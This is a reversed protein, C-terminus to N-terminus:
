APSAKQKKKKLGNSNGYGYYGRYGYKYHDAQKIGNLVLYVNSLTKNIVIQSIFDLQKKLTKQNRVIYLVLDCFEGLIFPDSVLGAPPSDIIIYDYEARLADFLRSMNEALLLDAPNLPVPGAHYVHLGPIENVANRIESLDNVEGALYSTLGKDNTLQLNTGIVPKRTDFELLAIKKGPLPM